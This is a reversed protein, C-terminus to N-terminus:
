AENEFEERFYSVLRHFRSKVTGLPIALRDAIQQYNLGQRRLQWTELLDSPMEKEAIALKRHLFLLNTKQELDTADIVESSDIERVEHKQRRQINLSKNRAATFLWPKLAGPAFEDFNGNLLELFVDHLVEEAVQQNGTFRFIFRLLVGSHRDYLVRFAKSNSKLDAVLQEDSPSVM